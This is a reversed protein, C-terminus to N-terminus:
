VVAGDDPGDFDTPLRDGMRAVLTGVGGLILLVGAVDRSRAQAMGILSPVVLIAVGLAISGLAWRTVPRLKPIPPAPPPIYHDDQDGAPTAGDAGFVTWGAGDPSGPGASRRGPATGAPPSGASPAAGDASAGAGAEPSGTPRLGGPEGGSDAEGPAAPPLTPEGPDDGALHRGDPPLGDPRRGTPRIIIISPRRPGDLDEAAPWLREGQAPERDFRAVLDLFAAEDDAPDRPTGAPGEAAAAPRRPDAPGAPPPPTDSGGAPLPDSDRAGGAPSGSGASGSGASRSETGTTGSEAGGSGAGGSGTTGPEPGGAPEGTGDSDADRRGSGAPNEAM